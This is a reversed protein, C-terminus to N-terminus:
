IVGGTIVLIEGNDPLVAPPVLTVIVPVEKVPAVDTVNSPIAAVERLTTFLVVIVQIVGARLSPATPMITVVIYPVLLVNEDNV